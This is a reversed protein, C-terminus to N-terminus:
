TYRSLYIAKANRGGIISATSVHNHSADRSQSYADHDRTDNIPDAGYDRQQCHVTEGESTRTSWGSAAIKHDVQRESDCTGKGTRTEGHTERGM